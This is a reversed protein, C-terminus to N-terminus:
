QQRGEVAVLLVGAALVLLPSFHCEEDLTVTM